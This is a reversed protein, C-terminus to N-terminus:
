TITPRVPFRNEDFEFDGAHREWSDVLLYGAPSDIQDAIAEGYAALREDATGNDASLGDFRWIPTEMLRRMVQVTLEKSPTGCHLWWTSGVEMEQERLGDWKTIDTLEAKELVEINTTTCM